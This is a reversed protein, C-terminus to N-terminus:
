RRGHRGCRRGALHGLLRRQRRDRTRGVRHLGLPIRRWRRWRGRGRGDHLRRHRPVARIWRRRWRGLRHRRGVREEDTASGSAAGSGFGSGGASGGISSGGGGGTTGGAGGCGVKTSVAGTAHTLALTTTIKGGSGGTGGSSSNTNGGGGGAGSLTLTASVTGAPPTATVYTSCNPGSSWTAAVGTTSASAVGPTAAVLAVTSLMGAVLSAALVGAAPRRLRGTRATADTDHQMSRAM